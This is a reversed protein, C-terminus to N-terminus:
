FPPITEKKALVVSRCDDFVRAFCKHEERLEAALMSQVADQSSEDPSILKDFSYRACENTMQSAILLDSLRLKTAFWRYSTM